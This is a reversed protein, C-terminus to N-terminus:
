IIIYHTMIFIPVPVFCKPVERIDEYRLRIYTVNSDDGM